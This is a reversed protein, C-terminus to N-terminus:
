TTGFINGPYVNKLGVRKGLECIEFIKKPLTEPYNKLQWSIVGSFASIHWPVDIGLEKKIFLALNKLMTLDDTLGPIILTTIELHIKKRKVKKVNKLVPMLRAGAFKKYFDDAFSKIDINIADLYKSIKELVLDSFYGNSVWVNKLDKQHALEMIDLAYESFITPENYTYAISLCNNRKALEVIKEPSFEKNNRVFNLIEKQEKQQSIDCNHCNKCKFNCGFTGFSFARSGPLFHYLPKKEIPDVNIAAPYGYVLLMLRGDINKRVGCLGTQRNRILCFHHCAQCRVTSDKEKEYFRCERM